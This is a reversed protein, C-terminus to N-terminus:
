LSYKMGLMEYKAGALDNYKLYEVPYGETLKAIAALNEETDTIGPIMPVRFLFEKGCAKLYEINQLIKKNSVGTYKRHAEEDVLKIDQMIYDFKDIVRRYVQPDAYGSTQLAKHIRSGRGTTELNSGEATGFSRESKESETLTQHESTPQCLRDLEEALAIVFASQMLPEGGSVTIGGGTLSFFDANKALRGALEKASVREGAISLAGNPCAYACRDFEKCIEHECGQLCRGCGTCVTKKHMLQVAASLGEPNHCWLCKLPCGKLFVTVRAGPGDHISFEKIDFIIGNM